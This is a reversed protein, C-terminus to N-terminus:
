KAWPPKNEAPASTPPSWAPPAASEPKKPRSAIIKKAEENSANADAWKHADPPYSSGEYSGDAKLGFPAEPQKAAPPTWGTSAGAAPAAAGGWPPSGTAPAASAPPPKVQEGPPIFGGAAPAGAGGEIPMYRKIKNKDEYTKGDKGTGGKELGVKAQMPINHLAASDDLRIVGTAHCIASLAGQAIQVATANDNVLNLNDFLKREAFEGDLIELTLSLYQGKADSTPKMESEVIKVNYVGSPVPDLMGGPKITSADFAGPLKSM